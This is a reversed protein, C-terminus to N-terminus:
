HKTIKQSHCASEKKMHFSIEIFKVLVRKRFFCREDSLEIKMPRQSFIPWLSFFTHELNFGTWLLLDLYVIQALLPHRSLNLDFLVAVESQAACFGPFSTQCPDLDIAFLIQLWILWLRFAINSLLISSQMSQALKSKMNSSKKPLRSCLIIM